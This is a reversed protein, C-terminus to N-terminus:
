YYLAAASHRLRAPHAQPRCGRAGRHTLAQAPPRPTRWYAHTSAADPAIRAVALRQAPTTPMSLLAFPEPESRRGGADTDLLAAIRRHLEDLGTWACCQQRVHALLTLLYPEEPAIALAKALPAEADAERRWQLYLTALDAAVVADRPALREAERLTAEAVAFERARMQARARLVLTAATEGIAGHCDKYRKGSGCPCPANRSLPAAATSSM